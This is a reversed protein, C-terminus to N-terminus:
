RCRNRLRANRSTMWMDGMNRKAVGRMHVVVRPCMAMGASHVAPVADKGCDMMGLENVGLSSMCMGGLLSGGGLLLSMVLLVMGRMLPM